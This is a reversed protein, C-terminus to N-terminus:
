RVTLIESQHRTGQNYPCTNKTGRTIKKAEHEYIAKTSRRNPTLLTKYPQKHQIEGTTGITRQIRRTRCVAFLLLQTHPTQEGEASPLASLSDVQARLPMSLVKPVYGQRPKLVVNSDNPRLELCSDDKSLGQLVGIQKVLALALLLTTKLSLPRLDSKMPEFLPDRLARLLISLDWSPVTNPHPPNLRRSGRLFRVVLDHKGISQGAIPAHYAMITAQWTYKSCPRLAHM